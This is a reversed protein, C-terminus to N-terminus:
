LRGGGRLIGELAESDDEQVASRAEDIRGGIVLVAVTWKKWAGRGFDAALAAGDGVDERDLKEVLEPIGLREDLSLNERLIDVFAVGAASCLWRALGPKFREGILDVVCKRAVSELLERLEAYVTVEFVAGGECEVTDVDKARASRTLPRLIPLVARISEVKDHSQLLCFMAAPLSVTSAVDEALFRLFSVALPINASGGSSVFEIIQTQYNQTEAGALRCFYSLPSGLEAFVAARSERPSSQLCQLLLDDFLSDPLARLLSLFASAGRDALIQSAFPLTEKSGPTL